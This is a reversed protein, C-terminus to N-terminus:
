NCGTMGKQKVIIKRQRHQTNGDSSGKNLNKDGREGGLDLIVCAGHRDEYAFLHMNLVMNQGYNM